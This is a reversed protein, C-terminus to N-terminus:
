WAASQFRRLRDVPRHLPTQYFDIAARVARGSLNMFTDPKLLLLKESGEMVEAVQSQFRDQFRSAGPGKALAISLSLVWM